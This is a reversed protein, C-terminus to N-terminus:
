KHPDCWIESFWCYLRHPVPRLAAAIAWERFEPVPPQLLSGIDPSVLGTHLCLSWFKPFWVHCSEGDGSTRWGVGLSLGSHHALFFTSHQSTCTLAEAHPPGPARPCGTRFDPPLCQGKNYGLAIIVLLGCYPSEQPNNSTAFHLPAATTTGRVMSLAMSRLVAARLVASLELDSGQIITTLAAHLRPAYIGTNAFATEVGARIAPRISATASGVSDHQTIAALDSFKHHHAANSVAATVQEPEM